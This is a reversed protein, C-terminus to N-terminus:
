AHTEGVALIEPDLGLANLDRRVEEAYIRNMLIVRDPRIDRLAKPL